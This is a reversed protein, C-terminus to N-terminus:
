LTVFHCILIVYRYTVEAVTSCPVLLKDIRNGVPVLSYKYKETCRLLPDKKSGAERTVSLLRDSGLLNLAQM